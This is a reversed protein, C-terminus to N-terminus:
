TEAKQAVYCKLTLLVAETWRLCQKMVLTKLSLFYKTKWFSMDPVFVEICSSSKM